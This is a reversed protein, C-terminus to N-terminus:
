NKVIKQNDADKMGKLCRPKDNSESLICTAAFLERAKKFLRKEPLALPYVVYVQEPRLTDLSALEKNFVFRFQGKETDLVWVTRDLQDFEKRTASVAIKNELNATEALKIADTSTKLAHDAVETM